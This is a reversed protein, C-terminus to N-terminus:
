RLALLAVLLDGRAQEPDNPLGSFLGVAVWGPRKFVVAFQGNRSPTLIGFHSLTGDELVRWGMAYYPGQPAYAPRPLARPDIERAAFAFYQAATGSWGGASGLWPDYTMDRTEPLVQAAIQPFPKAFREEALRGLLCYGVNAYVERTGPAFQRPPVPMRTCPLRGEKDHLPDGAVNRDWGGAHRLLDAVQAGEYDEDLRILGRDVGAFVVAATIPKSLSWYHFVRDARAKFTLIHPTTGPAGYAIVGAHLGHRAMVAPLDRSERQRFVFLSVVLAILLMILVLRAYRTM